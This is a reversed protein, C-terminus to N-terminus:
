RVPVNGTPNCPHLAKGVLHTYSVPDAALTGNMTAGSNIVMTNEGGGLDVAGNIVAGDALEVKDPNNPTRTYFIGTQENYTSEVMIAIPADIMGSIRLNITGYSLIGCYTSKISGNIDFADGATNGSIGVGDQAVYLGFAAM